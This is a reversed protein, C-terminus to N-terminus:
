QNYWNSTLRNLQGALTYTTGDIKLAFGEDAISGKALQFEKVANTTPITETKSEAIYDIEVISDKHVM